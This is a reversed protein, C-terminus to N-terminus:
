QDLLIESKNWLEEHKTMADKSPMLYKNGNSEENMKDIILYLPNASNNKEHSLDKVPVYEIQYIVINKHSKENIKIKNPDLNKINIINEFFYYMRNKIYIEKFKNSM